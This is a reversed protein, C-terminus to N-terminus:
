GRLQFRCLTGAWPSDVDAVAVEYLGSALSVAVRDDSPDPDAGHDCSNMLSLETGPNRWTFCFEWSLGGLTEPAGGAVIMQHEDCWAFVDHGRGLAVGHGDGISILCPDARMACLRDYDTRPRDFDFTDDIYWCTGDPLELDPFEDDDPTGAVFFGCWSTSLARPLLLVPAGSLNM